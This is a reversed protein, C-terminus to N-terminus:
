ETASGIRSSPCQCRRVLGALGLTPTRTGRLAGSDPNQIHEMDALGVQLEGSGDLLATYSATGADPRATHSTGVGARTLSAVLREGEADKGIAGAFTVDCELAALNAAVNLAVGGPAAEVRVPNSSGWVVEGVCRATRDINAGGICAIRLKTIV